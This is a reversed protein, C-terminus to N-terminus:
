ETPKDAPDSDGWVKSEAADIAELADDFGSAEQAPYACGLTPALAEAQGRMRWRIVVRKERDSEDDM